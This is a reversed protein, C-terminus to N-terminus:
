ERHEAPIECIDWARREESDNKIKEKDQELQQFIEPHHHRLHSELKIV